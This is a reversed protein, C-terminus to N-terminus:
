PDVSILIRKEKNYENLLSQWAILKDFLQTNTTTNVDEDNSSM